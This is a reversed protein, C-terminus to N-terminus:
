EGSIEKLWPWQKLYEEVDKTFLTMVFNSIWKYLWKAAKRAEDRERLRSYLWERYRGDRHPWDQCEDGCLSEYYSIEDNLREVESRLEKFKELQEIESM